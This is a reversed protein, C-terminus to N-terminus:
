GGIKNTNCQIVRFPHLMHNLRVSYIEFDPSTKAESEIYKDIKKHHTM